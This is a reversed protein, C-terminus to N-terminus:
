TVSPGEVKPPPPAEATLKEAFSVKPPPPCCLAFRLEAIQGNGPWLTALTDFLDTSIM